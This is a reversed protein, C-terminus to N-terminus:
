PWRSGRESRRAWYPHLARRDDETMAGWVGLTERRSVRLDLELCEDIVPCGACLRAALEREPPDDATLETLDPREFAWFCLGDRTVVAALVEIPLAAYRDLRAAIAAYDHDSM